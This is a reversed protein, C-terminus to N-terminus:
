ESPLNQMVKSCVLHYKEYRELINCSQNDRQSPHARPALSLPSVVHSCVISIAQTHGAQELQSHLKKEVLQLELGKNLVLKCKFLYKLKADAWQAEDIEKM